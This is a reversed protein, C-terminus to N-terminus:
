LAGYRTQYEISYPIAAGEAYVRIYNDGEDFQIWSAQPSIGYLVSSETGGRNLSAGKFNTITNITLIDGAELEGAFDLTRVSGDPPKHYITFQSLSRNVNLTFVIGTEINGEYQVLTETSDDVTDGTLVVTNLDVFDPQTCNVVVDLAPEKTFISPECTKVVGSIDLELGDSDYLTMAVSRKPMFFSYVRRRLKSVTTSVYDPKFGIQFTMQRDERSVSHFQKGDVSAFSSSVITAEVPGLGGVDQLVLGDSVDNLELTMLLGSTTRIDVKSFTM